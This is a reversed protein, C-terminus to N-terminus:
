CQAKGLEDDRGHATTCAGCSPSHGRTSCSQLDLLAYLVRPPKNIRRHEEEPCPSPLQPSLGGCISGRFISPKLRSSICSQIKPGRCWVAGGSASRSAVRETHAFTQTHMDAADPGTSSLRCSQSNAGTINIKIKGVNKADLRSSGELRIQSLVFVAKVHLFLQHQIESDEVHGKDGEASALTETQTTPPCRPPSPNSLSSWRRAM